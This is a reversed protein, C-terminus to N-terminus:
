RNNNADHLFDSESLLLTVERMALSGFYSSDVHTIIWLSHAIRLSLTRKTAITVLDSPALSVIRLTVHFRNGILFKRNIGQKKWRHLSTVQFFSMSSITGVLTSNKRLVAITRLKSFCSDEEATNWSFLFTLRLAHVYSRGYKANNWLTRIAGRTKNITTVVYNGGVAHIDLIDNQIKAQFGCQFSLHLLIKKLCAPVEKSSAASKTNKRKLAALPWICARWIQQHEVGKHVHAPIRRQIACTVLVPLTVFKPTKTTICEIMQCTVNVGTHVMKVILIQMFTNISSFVYILLQSNFLSRYSMWGICSSAEPRKYSTKVFHKIIERTCYPCPM